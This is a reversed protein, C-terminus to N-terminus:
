ATLEALVLTLDDDRPTGQAHRTADEILAKLTDDLPADAAAVLAKQLRKAGYDKGDPNPWEIIGDSYLLLRDGSKWAVTKEDYQPEAQEGLRHGQAVLSKAKGDTLLFPFPHGANAYTCSQSAADVIACFATAYLEGRAANRVVYSMTCLLANATVGPSLLGVTDVCARACATILAAAVGHGTVDAILLAVRGPGIPFVGWWDGGTFSAPVVTGRARVPPVTLVSEEPLLSQQVTRALTMEQELSDRQAEALRLRTSVLDDLTAKLKENTERLEVTREKVKTELGVNLRGIEDFALANEWAVGLQMALAGLMDADEPSFPQADLRRDLYVFGLTENPTRIPACLVSRIDSAVVSAREKFREDSMANGTSVVEGTRQAEEVVSFTIARSGPRVDDVRLGGTTHLCDFGAASPRILAGREARLVTAFSDLVRPLLEDARRISNLVRIVDLVGEVGAAKADPQQLRMSISRTSAFMSGGADAAPALLAQRARAGAGFDVLLKRAEGEPGQLRQQFARQRMSVQRGLLLARRWPAQLADATALARTFWTDADGRRTLELEGTLQEGWMQYLPYAAAVLRLGRVKRAADRGAEAADSSAARLTAIWAELVRLKLALESREQARTLTARARALAQEAGTIGGMELLAEARLLELAGSVAPADDPTALGRHTGVAAAANGRAVDLSARALRRAADGLDAGDVLKQVDALSQVGLASDVADAAAVAAALPADKQLWSAARLSAASAESWRNARRAVASFCTAIEAAARPDAAGLEEATEWLPALRLYSRRVFGREASRLWERAAAVRAPTATEVPVPKSV